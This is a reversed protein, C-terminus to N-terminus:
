GKSRLLPARLTFGVRVGQRDMGNSLAPMLTVGSGFRQRYYFYQADFAARRGLTVDLGATASATLYGRDEGTLGIQGKSVAARSSFAIRRSLSGGVNASATSSLAPGAFGDLLDLGRRYSATASWTRGISHALTTQGTIVYVTRQQGTLASSGSGFSITTNRSFSLSRHYDIGLDIDHSETPPM